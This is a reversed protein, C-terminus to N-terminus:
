PRTLTLDRGGDAAPVFRLWWTADPLSFPLREAWEIVLLSTPDAAAEDLGFGALDADPALRYLDAHVLTRGDPLAYDFRYTYTPSRVPQTVGLARAFGRVWTTKGAGLEGVLAVVGGGQAFHAATDRGHADTAQEDALHLTEEMMM